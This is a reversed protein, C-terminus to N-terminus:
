AKFSLAIPVTTGLVKGLTGIQGTFLDSLNLTVTASISGGRRFALAEGIKLNEVHDRNTVFRADGVDDVFAQRTPQGRDHRRYDAFVVGLEGGIDLGIIEAVPVPGTAKVGAEARLKLWAGQDFLVQPALTGDAIEANEKQVIGDEDVDTPDNLVAVTSKGRPNIALTGSAADFSLNPARGLEIPKFDIAASGIPKPSILAKADELNQFQWTPM